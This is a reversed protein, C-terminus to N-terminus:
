IVVLINEFGELGVGGCHGVIVLAFGIFALVKFKFKVVAVRVVHVV